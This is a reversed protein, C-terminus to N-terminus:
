TRTHDFADDRHEDNGTRMRETEGHRQHDCDVARLARWPSRTSSRRASSSAQFTVATNKSLVPVSVRPPNGTASVVVAFFRM